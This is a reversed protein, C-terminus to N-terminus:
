IRGSGRPRSASSSFHEGTQQTVPQCPRPMLALSVWGNELGLWTRNWSFFLLNLEADEKLIAGLQPAVKM